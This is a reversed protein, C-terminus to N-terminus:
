TKLGTNEMLGCGINQVKESSKVRAIREKANLMPAGTHHQCDTPIFIFPLSSHPVASLMFAKDLILLVGSLPLVGSLTTWFCPTQM